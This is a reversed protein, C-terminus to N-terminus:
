KQNRLYKKLFNATKGWADQAAKKQYNNGSPNAFAHGADEYEYIQVNKHLGELTQKFKEVKDPTINQDEKGFFGIMPMDLTSLRKKDQVLDGYYIVLANIKNPLALATQLAWGGGFCWGIVGIKDAGKKDHLYHYAQKLNNIAAKPRSHVKKVYKIAKDPTTATEGHYLDVALAQLGLGALRRTMMRINDNLGWWEHIVILGPLKGSSNEPEAFYGTIGGSDTQAYTVTDTQVPQQQKYHVSANQVPRGAPQNNPTDESKKKSGSCNSLVM